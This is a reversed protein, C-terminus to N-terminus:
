RQFSHTSDEDGRGQGVGIPVDVNAMQHLVDL